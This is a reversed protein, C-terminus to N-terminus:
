STNSNMLYPVKYLFVMILYICSKSDIYKGGLLDSNDILNMDKCETDLSLLSM